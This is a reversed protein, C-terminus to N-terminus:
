DEDRHERGRSIITSTAAKHWASMLRQAQSTVQKTSYQNGSGMTNNIGSRMCSSISCYNMM